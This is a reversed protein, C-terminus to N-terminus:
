AMGSNVKKFHKTACGREGYPEMTVGLNGSQSTVPGSGESAEKRRTDAVCRNGAIYDVLHRGNRLTAWFYTQQLRSTYLCGCRDQQEKAGTSGM